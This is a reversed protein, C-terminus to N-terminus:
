IFIGHGTDVGEVLEHLMDMQCLRHWHHGVHGSGKKGWLRTTLESDQMDAAGQPLGKEAGFELAPIKLLLAVEFPRVKGMPVSRM